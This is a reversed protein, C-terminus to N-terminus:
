DLIATINKLGLDNKFTMKVRSFTPNFNGRCNVMTNEDCQGGTQLPLFLKIDNLGSSTEIGAGAFRGVVGEVDAGVTM